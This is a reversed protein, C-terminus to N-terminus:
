KGGNVDAERELRRQACRSVLPLNDFDLGRRTAMERGLATIASPELVAGALPFIQNDEVAIHRRYMERLNLLLTLLCDTEELSLTGEELWRRGLRDVEAHAEDATRHDAELAEVAALAAEVEASGSARMRPFLSEEEDRTHLPAAREFYRLATELSEQQAIDLPGGRAQETVRLLQGLFREIRRHCDSLLGLPRNFDNEPAAGIKIPM